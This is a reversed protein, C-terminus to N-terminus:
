PMIGRYLDFDISVGIMNLGFRYDKEPVSSIHQFFWTTNRNIRDEVMIHGLPGPRSELGEDQDHQAHVAAGLRLKPSSCGGLFSSLLLVLAVLALLTLDLKLLSM